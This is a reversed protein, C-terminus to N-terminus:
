IESQLQRANSTPEKTFKLDEMEKKDSRKKISEM